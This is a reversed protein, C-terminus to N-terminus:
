CQVDMEYLATSRGNPHDIVKVIRFGANLYIRRVEKEDLATDLRIYRIGKQRCLERVAETLLGTMGRGAFERRVCFKHLYVAEGEPAGPWYESDRQQLLFACATRGDLRGLYFSEPCADATLLKERTLWEEPWVRFGKARGWAAVERMVEIAKEVQGPCLRLTDM